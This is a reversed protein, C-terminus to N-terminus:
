TKTQPRVSHGETRGSRRKLPNRVYLLNSIFVVFDLIMKKETESCRYPIDVWAHESFFSSLNFGDNRDLNYAVNLFTDEYENWYDEDENMFEGLKYDYAYYMEASPEVDVYFTNDIRLSIGKIRFM